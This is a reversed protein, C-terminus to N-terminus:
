TGKLQTFISHYANDTVAVFALFVSILARFHEQLIFRLM